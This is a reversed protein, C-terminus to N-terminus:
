FTRSYNKIEYMISAISVLDKNLASGGEIGKICESLRTYYLLLQTLALKLIDMGCLFNSFSTIIDTHMLKIAGKWRDSFDKPEVEEIKIPQGSNSLSEEGTANSLLVRLSFSFYHPFM